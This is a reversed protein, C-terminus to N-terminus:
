VPLKVIFEVGENLKSKCEITGHFKQTILNYILHLGLGSGGQGRKTTFFPNFIKDIFEQKIGKGNDKYTLIISKQDVKEIKIDIKGEDDKEFGHLLSNTVFNTIIQAFEGAYSTVVLEKPYSSTVNVKTKRLEPKLSGIIEELYEGVNFERLSDNSQDVAIQKFSSILKSARNLNNFIIEASQLSHELFVELNSKKMKSDEYLKKFDKCEDLLHTSATVGIGVPTNIEHSIGAVLSGLQAMKESEILQNKTEELEYITSELSHNKTELEKTRVKVQNELDANFSELEQSKNKLEEMMKKLNEVMVSISISLTDDQSRPTILKHEFDGDSVDKLIMVKQQLDDLMKNFANAVEGDETGTEVHARKSLDGDEVITKITKITEYWSMKAGHEVLNLGLEEDEASVRLKHFKDLFKIGIYSLAVTWVIAAVVGLIQINLQDLRSGAPLLSIDAFAVLAITGFIGAGAHVSVAGVPDDIKFKLLLDELFFVLLSSMAGIAIAGGPEVVNCGATIGVLGAIIGNLVKEVAIFPKTFTMYVTVAGAGAAAALFTNVIIKSVGGGAELTSGGNFGFWGLWLIFVGLTALTLNYPTIKTPSGDKDFRGIRPGIYITAVLGVIGGVVHVVTSGAFDIFGLNNLWGNENWAWHGYIPYILISVVLSLLGYGKFSMREAVAGSVITAATGAFVLQFFFFAYENNSYLFSDSGFFGHSSAGFMLGYGVLWFAIGSATIDLINKLSINITNKARVLGTELLAFGAQMFFVLIAAFIIWTENIIHEMM